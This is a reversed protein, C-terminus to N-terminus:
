EKEIVLHPNALLPLLDRTNSSLCMKAHDSDRGRGFSMDIVSDQVARASMVENIESFGLQEILLLIASELTYVTGSLKAFVRPLESKSNIIARLSRKDGTMLYRQEDTECIAAFLRAEGSDIGDIVGLQDLLNLDNSVSIDQTNTKLWDCLLAVRDPASIKRKAQKPLSFRTTPVVYVLPNSLVEFFRELLSCGALKILIDNDALVLM